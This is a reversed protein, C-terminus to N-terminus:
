GMEWICFSQLFLFLLDWESFILHLTGHQESFALFCPLLFCSSRLPSLGFVSSSCHLFLPLPTFTRFRSPIRLCSFLFICFLLSLFSFFSFLFVSHAFRITNNKFAFNWLTNQQLKNWDLILLSCSFVTFLFLALFYDM